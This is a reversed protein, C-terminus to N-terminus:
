KRYNANWVSKNWLLLYLDNKKIKESDYELNITKAITNLDKVTYASSAKFPKNPDDLCYMYTNIKNILGEKENYIGYENSLKQFFVNEANEIGSYFYLYTNNETNLIYINKKIYMPMAICAQLSIDDFTLLESAIEKITTNSVKHNSQKIISPNEKVFGGMKQKEQLLINNHKNNILYFTSIDYLAIYMCWFISEKKRPYFINNINDKLENNENMIENKIYKQSNKNENESIKDIINSFYKDYVNHTLMLNELNNIKDVSDFKNCNYFIQSLFTAM